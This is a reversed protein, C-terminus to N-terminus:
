EYSIHQSTMINSKHKMIRIFSKLFLLLIYSFQCNLLGFSNCSLIVNNRNFLAVLTVKSDRREVRVYKHIAGQVVNININSNTNVLSEISIYNVHYNTTNFVHVLLSFLRLFFPNWRVKLM